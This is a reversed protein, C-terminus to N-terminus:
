HGRKKLTGLLGQPKEDSKKNLSKLREQQATEGYYKGTKKDKVTSGAGYNHKINLDGKQRNGKSMPDDPKYVKLWTGDAQQEFGARDSMPVAARLDHAAKDQMRLKSLYDNETSGFPVIKHTEIDVVLGHEELQELRKKLMARNFRVKDTVDDGFEASVYDPFSMGIYNEGLWNDTAKQIRKGQNKYKGEMQGTHMEFSNAAAQAIESIDDGENIPMNYVPDRYTDAVHSALWKADKNGLRGGFEEQAGEKASNSQSDAKYVRFFKQGDDDTEVRGMYAANAGEHAVSFGYPFEDGEHHYITATRDKPGAQEDLWKSYRKDEERQVGNWYKAEEKAANVTLGQLAQTIDRIAATEALDWADAFIQRNQTGQEGNEVIPTYLEDIFTQEVDTWGEKDALVEKAMDKLKKNKLKDVLLNSEEESLGREALDSLVKKFAINQLAKQLTRDAIGKGEFKEGERKGNQWQQYDFVTAESGDDSFEYNDGKKVVRRLERGTAKSTRKGTADFGMKNGIIGDLYLDTGSGMLNFLDTEERGHRNKKAEARKSKLEETYEKVIDKRRARADALNDNANTINKRDEESLNSQYQPREKRDSPIYPNYDKESVNSVNSSEKAAPKATPGDHISSPQIVTRTEVSGDPEVKKVTKRKMPITYIPKNANNSNHKDIEALREEDIEFLGPDRIYDDIDQGSLGYAKNIEIRKERDAYDKDFDAQNRKKWAEGVEQKQKNEKEIAKKEKHVNIPRNLEDLKAQRKVEFREQHKARAEPTNKGERAKDAKEKEKKAKAQASERDAKEKAAQEAKAKQEKQRAAEREAKDKADKEAQAKKKNEAEQNRAEVKNNNDRFSNFAENFRDDFM